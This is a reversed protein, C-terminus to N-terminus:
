SPTYIFRRRSLLNRVPLRSTAIVPLSMLQAELQRCSLHHVKDVNELRIFGRAMGEEVGMEWNGRSGRCFVYALQIAHEWLLSSGSRDSMGPILTNGETSLVKYM